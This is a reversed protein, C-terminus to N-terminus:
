GGFPNASSSKKPKTVPGSPAYWPSQYGLQHLQKGVDSLGPVSPAKKGLLNTSPHQARYQSILSSGLRLLDSIKSQKAEHQLRTWDIGGQGYLAQDRAQTLGLAAQRVGLSPMYYNNLMAQRIGVTPLYYDNLMSQRYSLEGQQYPSLHSWEYYRMLSPLMQMYDQLAMQAAQIKGQATGVLQPLASYAGGVNVPTIPEPTFGAM